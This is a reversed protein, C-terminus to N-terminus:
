ATLAGHSRKKNIRHLWIYTLLHGLFIILVSFKEKYDVSFFDVRENCVLSVPLLVGFWYILISGVEQTILYLVYCSIYFATFILNLQLNQYFFSVGVLVILGDILGHVLVKDQNKSKILFRSGIIDLTIVFFLVLARPANQPRSVFNGTDLHYFYFSCFAGLAVIALFTTASVKLSDFIHLPNLLLKSTQTNELNLYLFGLRFCVICIIIFGSYFYLWNEIESIEHGLYFHFFLSIGIVAVYAGAFSLRHLFLQFIVGSM